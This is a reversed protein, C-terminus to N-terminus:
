VFNYSELGKFRYVGAVKVNVARPYGSRTQSYLTLTDGPVFAYLRIRPALHAYFWAYRAEFNADDVAMFAAVLDALSDDPRQLEARLLDRVEASQVPDLQDTISSM